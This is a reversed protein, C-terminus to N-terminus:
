AGKALPAIELVTASGLLRHLPPHCKGVAGARNAM